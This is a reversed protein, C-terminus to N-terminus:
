WGKEQKRRLLQDRETALVAYAEADDVHDTVYDLYNIMGVTWARDFGAALADAIWPLQDQTLQDVDRSIINDQRLRDMIVDWNSNKM